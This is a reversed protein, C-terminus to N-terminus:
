PHAEQMGFPRISIRSDILGTLHAVDSDVEEIHRALVALEREHHRVSAAVCAGFLALAAGGFLVVLWLATMM